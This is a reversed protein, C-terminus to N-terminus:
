LFRLLKDVRLVEDIVSETFNNFITYDSKLLKIEDPIQDKMRNDYEESTINDRKLAKEKRLKPDSHVFIVADFMSELSYEYLLASEVLVYPRDINSEFFKYLEQFLYPRIIISIDKKNKGTEDNFLIERLKMKDLVGNPYGEPFRKCLEGILDQNTIQVQKALDDMILIPVGLKNFEKTIFTKGSGMQSTVAIKKM